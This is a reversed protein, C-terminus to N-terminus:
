CTRDACRQAVSIRTRWRAQRLETLARGDLHFRAAHRELELVSGASQRHYAGGTAEIYAWSTCALVAMLLGFLRGMGWTLVLLAVLYLETLRLKMGTAFDIAGVLLLM